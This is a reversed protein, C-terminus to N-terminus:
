LKKVIERFHNGREEFNAYMDFATCAPSLLVTDGTKAAAGARLVAEELGECREIPPADTVKRAAAEIDGAAEGILYLRKVHKPFIECLDDFPTKKGRGGAILLVPGDHAPLTAATRAPSSGISNNYYRVGNVTAIYENRHPVGTFGEVAGRVADETALGDSATIAAMINEIQYYGTLRISSVPLFGRIIGDKILHSGFYVTRGNGRMAATVPNGANLVALGDTDQHDLIVRKSAIYEDMDRHWNLHNPTINTIVARHPSRTMDTMQFSSLEVVAIDEPSMDGAGCLLPNGINGGLHVRYGGARLIEAILTTTTTKGDSGTVGIVPCPCLRFFEDMESTVRSGGAKAALLAHHDPRLGPTRFIIDGSLGDLYKEGTIMTVSEHFVGDKADRVTVRAGADLLLRVLPRNSVGLGIVTIDLGRLSSLFESFVPNM